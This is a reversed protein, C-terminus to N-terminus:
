ALATGPFADGNATSFAMNWYAVLLTDAAIIAVLDTGDAVEIRYMSPLSCGPQPLIISKARAM